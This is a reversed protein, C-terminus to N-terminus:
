TVKEGGARLWGYRPDTSHKECFVRRERGEFDWVDVGDEFCGGFSCEGEHNHCTACHTISHLECPKLCEPCSM